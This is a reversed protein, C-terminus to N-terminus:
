WSSGSSGSPEEGSKVAKITEIMKKLHDSTELMRQLNNKDLEEIGQVSNMFTPIGLRPIINKVAEAQVVSKLTRMTDSDGFDDNYLANVVKEISDLIQSLSELKTNDVVVDPQPFYTVISNVLKILEQEISEEEKNPYIKRLSETLLERLKQCYMVEMRARRTNHESQKKQTNRIEQSFFLNTVAVSRSFENDSLKNFVSYPVRTYGIGMNTLSDFMDQDISTTNTSRHDESVTTKLGSMGTPVIQIANSNISQVISQPDTSFDLKNKQLFAERTRAITKRADQKEDVNLEVVTKDTANKMMSITSAVILMTRLSFVFKADDIFTKGTGDDRYEYAYYVMFDKPVYVLATKQKKLMRTFLCKSISNVTRTDMGSIGLSNMHSSIYSGFVKDFVRNMLNFSSSKGAFDHLHKFRKSMGQFAQEATQAFQDSQIFQESERFSRESVPVGNEDVMVWFAIPDSPSGPVIIPCVSEIPLKMKIAEGKPPASDYELEVFRKEIVKSPEETHDNRDMSFSAKVTEAISESKKKNYVDLAKMFDIRDTFRVLDEKEFMGKLRKSISETAVSCEKFVSSNETGVVDAAIESISETTVAAENEGLFPTSSQFCNNEDTMEWLTKTGKDISETTVRELGRAVFNSVVNSPLILLPYAGERFAVTKIIELQESGFSTDNNFYNSLVECIGQKFEADYEDSNIDFYVTGDQLDIPSVVSSAYIAAGQDIEPSVRRIAEIEEKIESVTRVTGRVSSLITDLAVPDSDRTDLPSLQRVIIDHVEEQSMHTLSRIGSSDEAEAGVEKESPVGFIKLLKNMPIKFGTAM